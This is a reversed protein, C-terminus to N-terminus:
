GMDMMLKDVNVPSDTLESQHDYNILPRLKAEGTLPYAYETPAAARAKPMDGTQAFSYGLRKNEEEIFAFLDGLSSYVSQLFKYNTSTLCKGVDAPGKDPESFNLKTIVGNVLEVEFKGEGHWSLNNKIERFHDM